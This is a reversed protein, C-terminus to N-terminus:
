DGTKDSVESDENRQKASEEELTAAYKVLKRLAEAFDAASMYQDDTIQNDSTIKVPNIEEPKEDIVVFKDFDKMNISM